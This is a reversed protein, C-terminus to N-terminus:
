AQNGHFLPFTEFNGKLVGNTDKLGLWGSIM